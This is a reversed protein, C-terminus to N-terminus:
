DAPVIPPMSLLQMEPALLGHYRLLSLAPEITAFTLRLLAGPADNERGALEQALLRHLASKEKPFLKLRVAADPDLGALQRALRLAVPFGGLEDILGLAKADEGTWVRGGAATQVQAVSLQRGQAAKETFDQYVEDLWAQLRVWEAETYDQRSNWFTANASTSLSDWDLGLKQWLGSTLLKGSVVGISGTLTAPQAVIRDAAMAVFYGGSGAVNGMSVVVPKGAERARVVERWITDSAVYSGGGSNIRFLIAKVDKDEAAARLAKAVTESGMTLGALLPEYGSEGRRILGTGYILAITAGQDYAKGTRKSYAPLDLAELDDGFLQELKAYVGDRYLLGDVLQSQLAEDAWFPGQAFLDIVRQEPLGRGGAIGQVIQKFLSDMIAQSARKHAETFRQETFTNKLTKYDQRHDLRAVVGLKELSGRVFLSEMLLGTLAVMGSPQLYIEDFASALYYAQNGAESEGFTEAYAIAKKGKARFALVADRLEQTMAAKMSNSGLRGVLAVVRDDDAAKELGAVTDLLDAKDRLLARAIPDDPLHEVFEQEFDIELLTRQPVRPEVVWRVLAMLIGLAVLVLVTTGLANRLKTLLHKM